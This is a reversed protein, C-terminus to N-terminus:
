MAVMGSAARLPPLDVVRHSEAEKGPAHYVSKTMENNLSGNIGLCKGHVNYLTRYSNSEFTALIRRAALYPIM